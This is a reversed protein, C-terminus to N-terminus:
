EGLRKREPVVFIDGLPFVKISVLQIKEKDDGIFNDFESVASYIDMDDVEKQGIFVNLTENDRENRRETYMYKFEYVM